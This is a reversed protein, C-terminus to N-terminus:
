LPDIDYSNENQTPNPRKTALTDKEECSSKQHQNVPTKIEKPTQYTYQLRAQSHKKYQFPIELRSPPHSLNM